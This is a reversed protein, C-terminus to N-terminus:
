YKNSLGADDLMCQVHELITCNAWEVVANSQPSSPMTMEKTIGESELYEAFKKPTYECGGDPPFRKVQKGSEQASVVKWEKFKALAESKYNLLIM